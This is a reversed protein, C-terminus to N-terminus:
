VKEPTTKTVEEYSLSAMKRRSPTYPKYTKVSM